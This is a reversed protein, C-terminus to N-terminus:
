GTYINYPVVYESLSFGWITQQDWNHTYIYCSNLGRMWYGATVTPSAGMDLGASTSALKNNGSEADMGAGRWITWVGTEDDNPICTWIDSTGVASLDHLTPSGATSVDWATTLEFEEIEDSGVVYMRTGAANFCAGRDNSATLSKTSNYSATSSDWAVSLDYEDMSDTSTDLVFMKTGDTSFWFGGGFQSTNTTISTSSVHSATSVDYDTTMSYEEVEDTNFDLIYFQEGTPRMFISRPNTTQATFSYFNGPIANASASAFDFATGGTDVQTVWGNSNDEIWFLKEDESMSMAVVNLATNSIDFTSLAGATSLDWATTLTTYYIKYNSAASSAFALKTGASNFKLSYGSVAASTSLSVSDYSATSLDWATTLSYQYINDNANGLVFCKTGDPKFFVASPSTDESSVDLHTYTPTSEIDYSTAFAIRTVRNNGDDVVFVYDGAEQCYMCRTASGLTGSADLEKTPGEQPFNNAAPMPNGNSNDCQIERLRRSQDLWIIATGGNWCDWGFSNGLPKGHVQDNDAQIYYYGLDNPISAGTGGAGLAKQWSQM